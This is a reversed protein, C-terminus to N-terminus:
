RWEVMECRHQPINISRDRLTVTVYTGDGYWRITDSNGFYTIITQGSLDFCRLERDGRVKGDPAATAAKSGFFALLCVIAVVLACIIKHKM